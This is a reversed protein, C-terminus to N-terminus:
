ISCVRLLTMGCLNSVKVVFFKPRLAKGSANIFELEANLAPATPVHREVLTSKCSQAVHQYSTCYNFVDDGAHSISTTNQDSRDM